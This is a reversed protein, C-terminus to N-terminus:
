GAAAGGPWSVRALLRDAAACASAHDTGLATVLVAPGDAPLVAATGDAVAAQGEMGPGAVIVTVVARADGVAAPHLSLEHHVLPAGDLEVRTVSALSGPAEGFRGLVLEERWWLSAGDALDVVTTTHHECGRVLVTPRPEWRLRGGVGVRVSTRASSPGPRPGPQVLQAGTSRVHLRDGDGVEIHLDLEDGGLPGGAGGVMWVEGDATARLVIPPESRLRVVRGGAM